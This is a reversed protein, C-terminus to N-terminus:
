FTNGRWIKKCFWVSFCSIFFISLIFLLNTKKIRINKADGVIVFAFLIMLLIMQYFRQLPFGFMSLIMFGCIGCFAFLYSIKEETKLSSNILRIAKKFVFFFITIYLLLGIIGEEALLLIYDNHPHEFRLTGADMFNIGFQGYNVILIKWNSIGCGILPRDNIMKLSHKWLLLRETFSGYVLKSNRHAEDEKLFNFLSTFKFKLNEYGGFQFFIWGVIIVIVLTIGVSFIKEKFENSRFLFQYGVFFILSSFLLATIVSFSQLVVISCLAIALSFFMFHRRYGKFRIIGDFLFPLCMFLTEAYFNKNGLTSCFYYEVQFPKIGSVANLIAPYFDIAGFLTFILVAIGVGVNIEDKLKPFRKLLLIIELLFIYILLLRLWDYLATSYDYARFISAGCLALFIFYSFQIKNYLVFKRNM